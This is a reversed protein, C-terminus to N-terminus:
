LGVKCRQLTYILLLTYIIRENMYNCEDICPNLLSVYLVRFLARAYDCHLLTNGRSVFSMPTRVGNHVDHSVHVNHCASFSIIFSATTHLNCLISTSIPHLHLSTSTAPPSASIYLLLRHRIHFQLQSRPNFLPPTVSLLLSSRRRLIM